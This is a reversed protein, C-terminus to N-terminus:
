SHGIEMALEFPADCFREFALVRHKEVASKAARQACDGAEKAFSVHSKQVVTRVKTKAIAGDKRAAASLLELVVIWLRKIPCQGTLFRSALEHNDFANIRHVAIKAVQPL